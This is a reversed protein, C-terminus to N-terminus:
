PADHRAGRSGTITRPLSGVLVFPLAAAVLLAADLSAVDGSRAITALVVAMTTGGPGATFSSISPDFVVLAMVLIAAVAAVPSLAPWWLWRARTWWGAGLDRAAAPEDPPISAASVLIFVCALSVAHVLHACTTLLLGPRVGALRACSAAVAGVLASPLVIPVLLMGGWGASGRDLVAIALVVAIVVAPLAAAGADVITTGLSDWLALRSRASSPTSLGFVLGVLPVLMAAHLVAGIWPHPASGTTDGRRVGTSGRRRVELFERVIWFGVMAALLCMTTTMVAVRLPAPDGHIADRIMLGPGYVRGGGAITGNVVDGLSQCLSWLMAIAIAPAM